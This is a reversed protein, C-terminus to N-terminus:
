DESEIAELNSQTSLTYFIENLDSLSFMKLVTNEPFTDRYDGNYFQILFTLFQDGYYDQAIMDIDRYRNNVHYYDVPPLQKIQALFPSDLVDYVGEQFNLFKGLDFKEESSYNRMYFTM